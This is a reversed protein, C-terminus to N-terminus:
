AKVDVTGQCSYQTSTKPLMRERGAPRRWYYPTLATSALRM